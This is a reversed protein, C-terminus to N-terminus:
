KPLLARLAIRVLVVLLFAHSLILYSAMLLTLLNEPIRFPALRFWPQKNARVPTWAAGINIGSFGRNSFLGLLLNRIQTQLVEMSRVFDAYQSILTFGGALYVWIEVSGRRIDIKQFRFRPGLLASVMSSIEDSLVQQLDKALIFLQGDDEANQTRVIFYLALQEEDPGTQQLPRSSTTGV